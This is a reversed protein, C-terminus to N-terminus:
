EKEDTHQYFMYAIMYGIKQKIMGPADIDKITAFVIGCILGDEEAVYYLHEPSAIFEQYDAMTIVHDVPEYFDPNSAVHLAHLKLIIQDVASYDQEEAKRIIM